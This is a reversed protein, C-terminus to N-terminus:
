DPHHPGVMKCRSVGGSTVCTYGPCCRRRFCSDGDCSEPGFDMCATSGLPVLGEFLLTAALVARRTIRWFRRRLM